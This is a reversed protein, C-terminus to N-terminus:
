DDPNIRCGGFHKKTYHILFLTQSTVDLLENLEAARYIVDGCYFGESDTEVIADDAAFIVEEGLLDSWIRLVRGSRAFEDLTMFGVPKKWEATSVSRAVKILSPMMEGKQM